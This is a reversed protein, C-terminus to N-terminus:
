SWFEFTHAVRSWFGGPAPATVAAKARASASRVPSELPGGALLEESRASGPAVPAENLPVQGDAVKTGPASGPAPLVERGTQGSAVLGYEQRAVGAQTTRNALQGTQRALARNEAELRALQTSDSSLQARQGLLASWPMAVLLVLGAFLASAVLLARARRREVPLPPRPARSRPPRVLVSRPAVAPAGAPRRARRRPRWALLRGLDTGSLRPRLNRRRRHAGPRLASM